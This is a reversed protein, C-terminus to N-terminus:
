RQVGKLKTLHKMMKTLLSLLEQGWAATERGILSSRPVRPQLVWSLGGLVLRMQNIPMLAWVKKSFTQYNLISTEIQPLEKIKCLNRLGRKRNSHKLFLILNNMNKSGFNKMKVNVQALISREVKNKKSIRNVQSWFHISNHLDRTKHWHNKIMRTISIWSQNHSWSSQKKKIQREQRRESWSIGSRKM